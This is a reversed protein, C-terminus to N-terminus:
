FFVNISQSTPDLGTMFDVCASRAAVTCSLLEPAVTLRPVPRGPEALTKECFLGEVLGAVVGRTRILCEVVLIYHDLLSTVALQIEAGIYEFAWEQARHTTSALAGESRIRAQLETRSTEIIAANLDVLSLKQVCIGV